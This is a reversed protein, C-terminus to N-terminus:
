RAAAVLLEALRAPESFQPWHGTPLDVVDLHELAALERVYAHWPHDPAMMDRIEAATQECSIMTSPVARRAADDGTLRLPDQAVHVPQSIATARFRALAADDLGRIMDDGLDDWDPLPIEGDVVPLEANIVSGEGGPTTDVYVVHRVRGPRADLAGYVVPGGGSHGVLVLDGPTADIVRALDAIQDALTTTRREDAAAGMGAPTLPVADVGAERLAPLVADWSSADLWFGPVLVMTTM